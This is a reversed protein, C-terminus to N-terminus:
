VLDCTILLNSLTITEQNSAKLSIELVDGVIFSNYDLSIAKESTQADYKQSYITSSGRIVKVTTYCDGGNYYLTKIHNFSISVGGKYNVRFSLCTTSSKTSFSSSSKYLTLASGAVMSLGVDINNVKEILAKLGENQNASVEKSVLIEALRSNSGNLITELNSIRGSHNVVYTEVSGVRASNNNAVKEVNTIKNTNNSICTEANAIRNTNNTVNAELSTIRSTNNSAHTKAESLADEVNTASFLGKGDEIIVKNAKLDLGDVTGKIEQIASDIKDMNRNHVEIDYHENVLPKELQLNNTTVAKVIGKSSKLYKKAM